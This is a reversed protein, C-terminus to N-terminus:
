HCIFPYSFRRMRCYIGPPTNNIFFNLLTFLIGTNDWFPYRYQYLDSVNMLFRRSHPLKLLHSARQDRPVILLSKKTESLVVEGLIIWFTLSMKTTTVLFRPPDCIPWSLNLCIFWTALSASSFPLNRSFCVASFLVLDELFYNYRKKQSQNKSSLACLRRLYILSPLIKIRLM